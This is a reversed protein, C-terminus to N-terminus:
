GESDPEEPEFLAPQPDDVEAQGESRQLLSAVGAFRGARDREMPVGGFGTVTKHRPEVEAIRYGPRGRTGRAIIGFRRGIRQVAQGVSWCDAVVGQERLAALVDVTSEQDSAYATALIGLVAFDLDVIRADEPPRAACQACLEDPNYQSLVTGCGAACVRAGSFLPTASLQRKPAAV